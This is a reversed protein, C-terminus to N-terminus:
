LTRCMPKEVFVHKRAAVAQMVQEFHADDYSAISVLDVAPDALIAALDEAPRGQGLEAALDASRSADLDYLWRVECAPHRQYALAHQRGVGLGVVAAGLM